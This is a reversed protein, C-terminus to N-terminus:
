EASGATTPTLGLTETTLRYGTDVLAHRLRCTNIWTFDGSVAGTYALSLVADGSADTNGRDHPVPTPLTLRHHSTVCLMQLELLTSRGQKAAYMIM